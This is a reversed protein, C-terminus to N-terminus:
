DPPQPNSDWKPYLSRLHSAFHCRERTQDFPGSKLDHADRKAPDFGATTM